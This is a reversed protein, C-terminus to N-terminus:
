NQLKKSICETCVKSSKYETIVNKLAILVIDLEREREKFKLEKNSPCM